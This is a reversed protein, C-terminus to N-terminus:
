REAWAAAWERAASQSCPQLAPRAGAWQGGVQQGSDGPLVEPRAPTRLLHHCRAGVGPIPPFCSVGRYWVRVLHGPAYLTLSFELGDRGDWLYVSWASCAEGGPWLSHAGSAGVPFSM